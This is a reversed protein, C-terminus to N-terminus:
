RVGGSFKADSDIMQAEYVRMENMRSVHVAGKLCKFFLTRATKTAQILFLIASGMFQGAEKASLTHHWPSADRWKVQLSRTVIANCLYCGMFAALLCDLVLTQCAGSPLLVLIFIHLKHAFYSLKSSFGFLHCVIYLWDM